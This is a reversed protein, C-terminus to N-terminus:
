EDSVELESNMTELAEATAINEGHIKGLKYASWFVTEIISSFLQRIKSPILKEFRYYFDYKLENCRRESEFYARKHLVKSYKKNVKKNNKKNNNKNIKLNFDM